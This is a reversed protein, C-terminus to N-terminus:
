INTEWLVLRFLPYGESHLTQMTLHVLQYLTLGISGSLSSSNQIYAKSNANGSAGISFKSAPADNEIGVNGSSIVKIQANIHYQACTLAFVFIVTKSLNM